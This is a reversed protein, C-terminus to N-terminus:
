IIKLSHFFTFLFDGQKLIQLFTNHKVDIWNLDSKRRNMKINITFSEKKQGSSYIFLSCNNVHVCVCECSGCLPPGKAEPTFPESFLFQLFVAVQEFIPLNLSSSM